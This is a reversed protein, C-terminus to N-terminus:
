ENESGKSNKGSIAILAGGIRGIIGVSILM